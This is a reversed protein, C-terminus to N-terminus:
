GQGPAGAVMDGLRTRETYEEEEEEDDDDDDFLDEHALCNWEMEEPSIRDELDPAFIIIRGMIRADPAHREAWERLEDSTTKDRNEEPTTTRDCGRISNQDGPMM